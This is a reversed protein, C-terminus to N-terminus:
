VARRRYYYDRELGAWFVNDSRGDLYVMREEGHWDSQWINRGATMSETRKKMTSISRAINM